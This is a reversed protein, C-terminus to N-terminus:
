LGSLINELWAMVLIYSLILVFLGIVFKVFAEVVYTEDRHMSRRRRRRKKKM